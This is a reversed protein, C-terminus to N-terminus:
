REGKKRLFLGGLFMVMFMLISIKINGTLIYALVSVLLGVLSNLIVYGIVKFIMRIIRIM